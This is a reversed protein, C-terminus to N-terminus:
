VTVFSITKAFSATVCSILFKKSKQFECSVTLQLRDQDLEILDAGDCAM